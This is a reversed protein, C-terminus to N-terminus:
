WCNQWINGDYVKLRNGDNSDIYMDGAVPDAPPDPRPHLRIVDRVHLRRAPTSTGIGVNGNKLVVMADSRSTSDPGNGIVFLRDATNWETASNPTYNTDYSGIVTECFSEATTYYGMATSRNGSAITDEGMATSHNGSADTSLGIATSYWGSATTYAGMATSAWGSATTQYGMATSYRGSATTDEGMATSRDGTADTNSGMATSRNGSATTDAGMATSISGSATTQYGMATSYFESATTQYGMATSYSGSATTDAGMATSIDGSATTQYGMATSAWGSATTNRGMATSYDGILDDNWQEGSVYGARFAAKRPYWILRTGAGKTTLTTGGGFTGKAIIGGDGDLSLKFEPTLTGIGFFGTTTLRMREEGASFFSLPGGVGGAIGGTTRIRGNVDLSTGPSSIGVGVRGDGDVFIGENEGDGSLWHGNLNLNTEATHNGLNDGGIGTASITITNDTDNPIITIGGAGILDVNDGDNSVGDISSVVNPAIKEATIANPAVKETTVANSAIMGTTIVDTQGENVFRDDYASGDQYNPALSVTDAEVNIGTGAGVNLVVDGNDAGGTLGDGAEVATIDGGGTGSGENDEGDAFGAPVGTLNDWHVQNTGQNPPDGDSISIEAKLVYQPHDNDELGELTGHDAPPHTHNVGAFESASKGELKEADRAKEATQAQLSYFVSVIQQRPFAVDGVEVGLWYNKGFDLDALSSKSGLKVSFLGLSSFTITHEEQWNPDGGTESEYIKFIVTRQGTIPTGDADTLKGQYNILFPVAVGLNVVLSFLFVCLLFKRLMM